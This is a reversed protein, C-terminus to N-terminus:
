REPDVSISLLAIGGGQEPPVLRDQLKKMKAQLRPCADACSNFVFDAIWVRGLMDARAFPKGEEDLLSFQPLEALVPLEPRAPQRMLLAGMPVALALAAFAVWGPHLVLKGPKEVALAQMPRYKYDKPRPALWPFVTLALEDAPTRPRLAQRGRLDARRRGAGRRARPRLLLAPRSRHPRGAAGGVPGAAAARHDGGPEAGRAPRPRAVLGGGGHRQRLSGPAALAAADRLALRLRALARARDGSRDRSLLAGSGALHHGAGSGAGRHEQRSHYKTYESAHRAAAGAHAAGARRRHVAGRDSDAPLHAAGPVHAALQAGPDAGRRAGSGERASRLHGARLAAGAGARRAGALGPAGGARHGGDFPPFGDLAFAGALPAARATGQAPRAGDNAARRRWSLFGPWKWRTATRCWRRWGRERRSWRRSSTPCKPSRSSSCRTGRSVCRSASRGCATRRSRRLWSSAFSTM